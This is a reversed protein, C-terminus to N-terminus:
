LNEIQVYENIMNCADSILSLAKSFLVQHESNKLFVADKYTRKQVKLSSRRKVRFIESDSDDSGQDLAARVDSGHLNNGTSLLQNHRQSSLCSEYTTHLLGDASM